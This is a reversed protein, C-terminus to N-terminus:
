HVALLADLLDVRLSGGVEGAVRGQVYTAYVGAVGKVLVVSLGVAALLFARDSLTGGSALPSSRVDRLGWARAMAVALGAAVLAVMAHGVAHMATAFVFSLLSTPRRLVRRLERAYYRLLSPGRM